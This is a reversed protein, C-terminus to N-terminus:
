KYEKLGSFFDTYSEFDWVTSVHWPKKQIHFNLSNEWPSTKIYKDSVIIQDTNRFENGLYSELSSSVYLLNPRCGFPFKAKYHQPKCHETNPCVTEVTSAM